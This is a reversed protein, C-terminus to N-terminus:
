KFNKVLYDKVETGGHGDFIAFLMSKTDGLFNDILFHGQFNFDFVLKFLWLKM